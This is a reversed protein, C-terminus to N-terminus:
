TTRENDSALRMRQATKESVKALGAVIRDAEQAGTGAPVHEAYLARYLEPTLKAQGTAPRPKPPPTDQDAGQPDTAPVVVPAHGNTHPTMASSVALDAILAEMTAMSAEHQVQYADREAKRAARRAAREAAEAPDETDEAGYWHGYLAHAAYFAVAYQIPVLALTLPLVWAPLAFAGTVAVLVSMAILFVEGVILTRDRHGIVVIALGTTLICLEFGIAMAAATWTPWAPHVLVVRDFIVRAQAAAMVIPALAAVLVALARGAKHTRSTETTTETTM